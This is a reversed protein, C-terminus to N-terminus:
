EGRYATDHYTACRHLIVQFCCVIFLVFLLFSNVMFLVGIVSMMNINESSKKAVGESAYKSCTCGESISKCKVM